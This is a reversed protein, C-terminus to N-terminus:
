ENREGNQRREARRTVKTAGAGSKQRRHAVLAPPDAASADPVCDGDADPGWAIAAPAEDFTVM